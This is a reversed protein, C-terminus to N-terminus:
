KTSLGNYWKEVEIASDLESIFLFSNDFAKLAIEMRTIWASFTDYVKSRLTNGPITFRGFTLIEDAEPFQRSSFSIVYRGACGIYEVNYISGQKTIKTTSIDNQKEKVNYVESSIKYFKYTNFYETLSNCFYKAMDSKSLSTNNTTIESIVIEGSSNNISTNTSLNVACSELFVGVILLLILKLLFKYGCHSLLCRNLGGSDKVSSSTRNEYAKFRHVIM